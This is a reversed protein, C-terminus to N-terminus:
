KSLRRFFEVIIAPIGVVDQGLAHTKRALVEARERLDVLRINLPKHRNPAHTQHVIAAFERRRDDVVTDGIGDVSFPSERDVDLGAALDPARGHLVLRTTRARGTGDVPACRRDVIPLEEADGGIVM